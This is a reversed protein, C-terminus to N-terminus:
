PHESLAAPGVIYSVQPLTGSKAAAVFRPLAASSQNGPQYELGNVVLPNTLNGSALLEQYKSFFLLPNDGFNDQAPWDYPYCSYNASSTESNFRGLTPEINTYTLASCGPSDNNDLVPGQTSVVSGGAVNISGTQWIVRNPDTCSIVGEQYMDGITFADALGYHYPIDERKYYSVSHPTNALVWQDNAGAALAAQNNSFSNSGFSTCQTANARGPENQYNIHWPLLHDTILSITSNVKRYFVSKGDENVQVQPDHFGRVGALTGFYHDFARNEQMYLIVHDISELGQAAASAAAAFTVLVPLGLLAKSM